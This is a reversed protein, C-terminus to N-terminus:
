PNGTARKTKRTKRELNRLAKDAAKAIAGGKEERWKALVDQIRPDAYRGLLPILHLREEESGAEKASRLLFKSVQESKRGSVLVDALHWYIPSFLQEEALRIMTARMTGGLALLSSKADRFVPGGEHTSEMVGVVLQVLERSSYLRVGSLAARVLRDQEEATHGWLQPAFLIAKLTIEIDTRQDFYEAPEMSLTEPHNLLEFWFQDIPLDEFDMEEFQQLRRVKRLQGIDVISPVNRRRKHEEFSSGLPYSLEPVTLMTEQLAWLAHSWRGFIGTLRLWFAPLRNGRLIAAGLRALDEFSDTRGELLSREVQYFVQNPNVEVDYDDSFYYMFSLAILPMEESLARGGTELFRDVLAGIDLAAGRYRLRSPFNKVVQYLVDRVENFVEEGELGAWFLSTIMMGQLVGSYMALLVDREYFFMGDRLERCADVFGELETIRVIEQTLEEHREM